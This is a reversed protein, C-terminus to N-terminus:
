HRPIYNYVGSTSGKTLGKGRYYNGSEESYSSCKLVCLLTVSLYNTYHSTLFAAPGLVSTCKIVHKHM